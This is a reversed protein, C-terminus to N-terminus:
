IFYGWVRLWLDFTSAGTAEIQYYIDGNSDCSVIVFDRAPMDNAKGAPSVVVGAYNTNTPGLIVYCDGAASGSDRCEVYMAVAKIGAPAGFVASLDIKTKATDSFSDGDFSTSTLATALPAYGYVDYYTSNKMSKLNGDYHIDDADPDVNTAGVYLGGGIRGDNAVNIDGSASPATATGGVYLGSGIRADASCRIEGAAPYMFPNGVALGGDTIVYPRDTSTDVNLNILSSSYGGAAGRTLTISETESGATGLGLFVLAWGGAGTSRSWIRSTTGWKIASGAVMGATAPVLTLGDNDIQLNNAGGKLMFGGAVAANYSLYNGAAYDGIGVGYRDNAGTGFLNRMNGLRIYEINTNYAAGQELISINPGAANIEVRGDGSAGLVLYPTGAPWDNAGSGDLDRAGSGSNGIRYVTGSVNSGVQFYEVQLYGRMEVFDGVTMAQGFDCTDDTNALAAALTGANHGWVQRAGSITVTNLAFLVTELESLYGKRWLKSSTGLDYADAEEPVIDRATITDQFVHKGTWTPAINQALQHAHDSRAFSTAVGASSAALTVSPSAPAAAVASHTHDSRSFSPAVGEAAVDSPHIAGPDDASVVIEGADFELGDGIRAQLSYSGGAGGDFQILGNGISLVRENALGDHATLVLYMAESPAGGSASVGGGSEGAQINLTNDERLYIEAQLILDDDYFQLGKVSNGIVRLGLDDLEVPM